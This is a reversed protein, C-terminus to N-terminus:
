QACWIWVEPPAQKTCGFLIIHFGRHYWGRPSFTPYYESHSMYLRIYLGVLANSCRNMYNLRQSCYAGVILIAYVRKRHLHSPFSVCDQSWFLSICPSKGKKKKKKMKRKSIILKKLFFFMFQQNLHATLLDMKLWPYCQFLFSPAKRRRSRIALLDPCSSGPAARM